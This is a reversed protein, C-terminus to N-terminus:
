PDRRACSRAVPTEKLVVALELAEFLDPALQLIRRHPGVRCPGLLEPALAGPQRAVDALDVAGAAANSIGRLQELEGRGFAVLAGRLFDLAVRLTEFPLHAVELELAHEAALHIRV